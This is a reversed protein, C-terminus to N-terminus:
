AGKPTLAPAPARLKKILTERLGYLEESLGTPYPWAEHFVRAEDPLAAVNELANQRIDTLPKEMHGNVPKGNRVVPTLLRTFRTGAPYSVSEGNAPHRSTLATELAGEAPFNASAPIITDGLFRRKGGEETFLRLVDTDGPVTTKEPTESLKILPIGAVSKLKYVGGLAPQDAATVLQTGVGFVDIKAGLKTVMDRITHEDLDNSAFVKAGPFGGEDMIQRAKISLAAMDGSDLRVGGLTVGLERCVTVANQVGQLTDYTDVLFVANKPMAKAYARFAAMEEGNGYQMIFSHAHTGKVPIGYRFGAEVNSTADAGGVFAARSPMLGGDDQARRLGFELVSRKQGDLGAATVVRSAKTAILSQGNLINLLASEIISAQWAKGRVRLIPENPFALSGEPIADIDVSLRAGELMSLFGDSFLGHTKLWAVHQQTFKWDRIWELADALGATVLYSGKFPMKRVYLEFTTDEDHKGDHFLAQAMTLHYFDCNFPSNTKQM